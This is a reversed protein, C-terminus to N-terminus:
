LEEVFVQHFMVGLTVAAMVGVVALSAVPLAAHHGASLLLREPTLTELLRKLEPWRWAIFITWCAAVVAWVAHIGHSAAGAASSPVSFPALQAKLWLVRADIAMRAPLDDDNLSGLAATVAMVESCIDCGKVHAQLADDIAGRRAAFEVEREKPCERANM